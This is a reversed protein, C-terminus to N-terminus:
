PEDVFPSLHRYAIILGLDEPSMTLKQGLRGEVSGRKDHYVIDHWGEINLDGRYGGRILEKVILAWNCDGLGPFCHELTDADCIGHKALNTRDVHADKAHVHYIKSSWDKINQIPDIFTAVLHSPDWELGIADSPVAEFCRQWMKPTCICNSGEPPLTFKGMPCHEFAIKVGHDAALAAHGTWIKKFPEVSDELPRGMLRGAFGAVMPVNIHEALLIVNRTTQHLQEATANDMHNGYFGGICSIRLGAQDYDAKLKDAKAQWSPKGPMYDDDPLARLEICKFGVRLAFEIRERDYAQMFGIRM